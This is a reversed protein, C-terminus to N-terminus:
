FSVEVFKSSASGILFASSVLLTGLGILLAQIDVGIIALACLGVCIGFSINVISDGARFALM